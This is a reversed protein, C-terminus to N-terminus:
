FSLFPFRQLERAIQFAVPGDFVFLRVKPELLMRGHIGLMAKDQGGDVARGRDMVGVEQLIARYETAMGILRDFDDIGVFAVGTQRVAIEEGVVFDGVADHSLSAVALSVSRFAIFLNGLHAINDLLIKPDTMKM